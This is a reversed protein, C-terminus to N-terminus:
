DTWWNPTMEVDESPPGTSPAGFALVEAGDPGGELNRMREPPLRVADWEKLEVIEDDVKLRANGSLIVYIEEQRHHRHGFPVRFNPALRFHSLGSNELELTDRAFRAEVNPAYGFKAAQDEVDKLNVVTYGAM